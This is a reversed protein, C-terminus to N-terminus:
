VVFVSQKFVRFVKVEEVMFVFKEKKVKVFVM